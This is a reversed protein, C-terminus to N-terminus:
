ESFSKIRKIKNKIRQICNDIQKNSKKLIKAIEIYSFGKTMLLFVDYEYNTLENHINNILEHYDEEDTINKLPDADSSLFNLMNTDENYDYDLSYTESIAKYKSSSYKKLINKIRREICLTIFTPLSTDKKSNYNRLSDSFAVNCESITEQMDVNLFNFFRKYKHILVDIIYKYKYFLINKADENEENYLMILEFDNTNNIDDINYKNM